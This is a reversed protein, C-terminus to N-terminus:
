LSSFVLYHHTLKLCLATYLHVINLRAVMDINVKSHHWWDSLISVEASNLRHIEEGHFNIALGNDKGAQLIQRTQEVDFVGKECFVDINDVHLEGKDM